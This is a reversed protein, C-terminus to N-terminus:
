QQVEEEFHHGGFLECRLEIIKWRQTRTRLNCIELLTDSQDIKTVPKDRMPSWPSLPPSLAKVTQRAWTISLHTHTHPPHEEVSILSSTVFSPHPVGRHCFCCVWSSGKAPKVKTVDLGSESPIKASDWLLCTPQGDQAGQPPHYHQGQSPTSAQKLLHRKERLFVISKFDKSSEPLENVSEECFPM